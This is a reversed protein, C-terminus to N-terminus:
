HEVLLRIRERDGATSGYWHGYQHGLDMGSVSLKIIMDISIDAM